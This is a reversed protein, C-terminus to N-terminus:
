KILSERIKIVAKHNKSSESGSRCNPRHVDNTFFITFDGPKLRIFQEGEVEKYFYNDTGEAHEGEMGPLLPAYGQLEEGSMLYQIDIYERHSEPRKNEVEDTIQDQILAFIDDGQIEHRGVPLKKFEEASMFDIAKQLAKPYSYKGKVAELTSFIM